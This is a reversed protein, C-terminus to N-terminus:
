YCKDVTKGGSKPLFAAKERGACDHIISLISFDHGGGQGAPRRPRCNSALLRLSVITVTVTQTPLEQWM